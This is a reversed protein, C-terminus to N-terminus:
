EFDDAVPTDLDSICLAAPEIGTQAKVFPFLIRLTDRCSAITQPSARRQNSLFDTFYRQVIPGFKVPSSM